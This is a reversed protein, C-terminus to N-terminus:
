LISKRIVQNIWTSKTLTNDYLHRVISSAIVATRARTNNVVTADNPRAVANFLVPTASVTASKKTCDAVGTPETPTSPENNISVENTDGVGRTNFEGRGPHGNNKKTQYSHNTLSHLILM